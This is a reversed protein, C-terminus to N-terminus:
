SSGIKWLSVLEAMAWATRPPATGTATWKVPCTRSEASKGTATPWPMITRASLPSSMSFGQSAAAAEVLGEGAVDGEAVFGDDGAVHPGDAAGGADEGVCAVRLFLGVREVVGEVGEVQLVVVDEAEAGAAGGFVVVSRGSCRHRSGRLGVRVPRVATEQLVACHGVV